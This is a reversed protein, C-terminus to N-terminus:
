KRAEPELRPDSITLETTAPVDGPVGVLDLRAARCEGPVVFSGATMGPRFPLEAIPKESPLCHIVSRIASPEGESGDVKMALRYTGPALVMVQSALTVQARGYYLIDLRGKGDASAVGEPSNAYIWNFPPPATGAAFRPNYLGSGLKAGTLRLWLAHAREYQGAAVLQSLLPARWDPDPNRTNSALALVLEANAADASLASLVGAEVRPRGRFFGRMQPVAGPTQSYAVLAPVFGQAMQSQLGVLVQMEVLGDTMRGTRFYREALLYRAARSRPDRSRAEDLLRESLADRGQTQMIAGRIVFPDASLPAHVAIRRVNADIAAPPTGGDAAATAIELLAKDMLVSPHSPWLAAALAPHRERDAVAANRVIQFTLLIAGVGVAIIAALGAPKGAGRAAM